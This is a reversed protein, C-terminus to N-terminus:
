GLYHFHITLSNPLEYFQHSIQFIQNLSHAGVSPIHVASFMPLVCMWHRRPSPNPGNSFEPQWKQEAVVVVPASTIACDHHGYRKSKKTYEGWLQLTPCSIWNGREVTAALVNSSFYRAENLLRQPTVKEELFVLARTSNGGFTVPCGFCLWMTVVNCRDLQRIGVFM